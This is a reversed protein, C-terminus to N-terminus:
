IWMNAQQTQFLVQDQRQNRGGKQTEHQKLEEEAVNKNSPSDDNKEMEMVVVQPYVGNNPWGM